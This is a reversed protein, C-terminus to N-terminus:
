GRGHELYFAIRELVKERDLKILYEDIGASLARKEADEGAVSTLAITPIDKWLANARIEEALQVGDMNPMEIDTLVLEIRNESNRLVDLAELGDMATLVEYGADETFNKVQNLFFKSDEVLLITAKGGSKRRTENKHENVWDPLLTSVIGYLDLMLTTNGLVIASGLIGTQRFTDEDVEIESNVVDIIESILIGVERGAFPFITVFPNEVDERPKVDAVDEISCLILNSGRYKISKKGSTQEIDNRNIKEIRSILGLPIGFQEDRANRVILLSQADTSEMKHSILEQTKAKNDVSRLDMVDSIGTIDLILAAKGDGLITAGAYTKLEQLHAGLPKVVIEESDLLNDVILGYNFEGTNVVVINYASKPDSRRDTGGRRDDAKSDDTTDASGANALNRSRRDYINQRRCIQVGGDKGSKFTRKCDLADTIWILPLLKGRLRLVAADDIREIRKKVQAAPIRVLEVLNVQPIAYRAGEAEVILSPIIALTLPLKIRITTGVDVTSYVDVTGGIKVLNSHVVDMGVGRGSIDSVQEATSFGPKFILRILENDNLSELQAAEMLGLELAKKKIKQPDIGRGDDAVEIIVQGAEHFASLKIVAPLKKGKELRVDPPEIGHDISNRVLHTLPDGIAEIITKDLEVEEGRIILEVQKNLNRSMDRVVRQFKNFVISIPQMRTSLIAAQLESTILDVGLVAKELGQVDNHYFTQSLQNRTLVLEGALTMLTDLLKVNVRLSTSSTSVSTQAKALTKEKQVTAPKKVKTPKESVQPKSSVNDSDKEKDKERNKKKAKGASKKEEIPPATAEKAAKETPPEVSEGVDNKEELPQLGSEKVYRYIRSPPLKVLNPVIDEELVTSFLVYFPIHPTVDLSEIMGVAEVDLMSDLLTGAQQIEKIVDMPTLDKREIDNLIDFDAMYIIRGGKAAQDLDFENLAFLIKGSPHAIEVVKELTEASDEEVSAITAKKLKDLADTIDIDNSQLYNNILDKLIDLSELLTSIVMSTPVLEQNRILNLLNEMGHSLEKIHELGLFGAGGKISHIARFVKNVVDADFDAGMEEIDLFDAEIGDLHERSEEIFIQLVEDDEIIAM